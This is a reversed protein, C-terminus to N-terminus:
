AEPGGPRALRKVVERANLWGLNAATKPLHVDFTVWNTLLPTLPIYVVVFRVYPQCQFRKYVSVVVFTNKLAFRLVLVWFECFGAPFHSTLIYFIATQRWCSRHIIFREISVSSTLGPCIWISEHANFM